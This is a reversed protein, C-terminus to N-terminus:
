PPACVAVTWARRTRGVLSRGLIAHGVSSVGGAAVLIRALYPMDVGLGAAWAVDGRACLGGSVLPCPRSASKRQIPPIRMRVFFM